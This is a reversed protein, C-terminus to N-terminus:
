EYNVNNLKSLYDIIDYVDCPNIEYDDLKIEEGFLFKTYGEKKIPKPLMADFVYGSDEIVYHRTWYDGIQYEIYMDGFENDSFLVFDPIKLLDSSALFMNNLNDVKQIVKLKPDGGELKLYSYIECALVYCNCLGGDDFCYNPMLEYHREELIDCTNSYKELIDELHLNDDVM